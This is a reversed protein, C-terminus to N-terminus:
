GADFRMKALEDPKNWPFKGRLKGARDYVLFSEVHTQEDLAVGYVEAGVRRLLKLDGTLFLWQKPDAQFKKAYASLATPSDRKPDCTISLFKVGKKAYSSQIAELQRNQRECPGPCSAFFFSVVHVEGDLEHSDFDRGSRETLHYDTLWDQKSWEPDADFRGSAGPRRPEPRPFVLRQATVLIGGAVLLAALGILATRKMALRRRNAHTGDRRGGGGPDRRVHDRGGVIRDFGTSLIRAALRRGVVPPTRRRRLLHASQAAHDLASGDPQDSTEASLAPVPFFAGSLLWLPMLLLNMVAHFGQTSDLRWAIIFGLGTMASRRSSCSVASNCGRRELRRFSAADLWVRSLDRRAVLAISTGGLLKGLVMAWRPTPAVLVAQLFGERRDEIISITAFIATFLLTLMLTGPFYYELFTPGGEPSLRFSQRLGAGFLIWFVLPQGIAGMVRHRQRFFRVLERWALMRVVLWPNPRLPPSMTSEGPIAGDQWLRRGTRAVFVDELTPKGLTISSSAIPFRTPLGGSGPRERRRIRFTRMETSASPPWASDSACRMPWASEPRGNAITVTDGGVTARLAAPTDLAVLRGADLLGLRDAKEAEELLHTTLVVTVGQSERLRRLYSWLDIRAGPDLGTSPEDLLLLRPRHLLAQALEVRRRLGGSLTEAREGARDALGLEGLVEDRAQRLREGRLGFLAGSCAINEAVTLKRDVSPSQFVVGLNGRM